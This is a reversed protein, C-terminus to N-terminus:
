KNKRKAYMIITKNAIVIRIRRMQEETRSSPCCSVHALSAVSQKTNIINKENKRYFRNVFSSKEYLRHLYNIVIVCVSFLVAPRKVVSTTFLPAALLV